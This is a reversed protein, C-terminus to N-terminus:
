KHFITYLIAFTSVLTAVITVNRYVTQDTASIKKKTAEVYIIDNQQIYYFPSAVIEPKTMDLRAWERKGNNDRIVLVNDRRGFFTMDGALAFGELLNISEGPITIVGPKSVEGIM